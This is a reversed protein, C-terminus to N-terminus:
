RRPDLRPRDPEDAQVDGDPLHIDVILLRPDFEELVKAAEKCTGVSRPEFGFDKISEELGKRTSLDDEVILVKM